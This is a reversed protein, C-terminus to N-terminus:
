VPYRDKHRRVACVFIFFKREFLFGYMCHLMAMALCVRGVITKCLLV